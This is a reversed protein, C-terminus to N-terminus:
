DSRCSRQDANSDIYDLKGRDDNLLDIAHSLANAALNQGLRDLEAMEAQLRDRVARIAEANKAASDMRGRGRNQGLRYPETPVRTGLLSHMSLFHSLTLKLESHLWVSHRISSILGAIFM